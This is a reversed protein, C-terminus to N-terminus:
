IPWGRYSRLCSSKVIVAVSAEKVPFVLALADGCKDRRQDNHCHSGM